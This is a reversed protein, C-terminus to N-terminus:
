PENPLSVQVFRGQRTAILLAEGSSSSTLVSCDTSPDYDHIDAQFIERPETSQGGGLAPVIKYVRLARTSDNGKDGVLIMSKDGGQVFASYVRISKLIESTQSRPDLNPIRILQRRQLVMALTPSNNFLTCSTFNTGSLHDLGQDPSTLVFDARTVACCPHASKLIRPTRPGKRVKYRIPFRNRVLDRSSEWTQVLIRDSHGEEQACMSLYRGDASFALSLMRKLHGVAHLRPDM